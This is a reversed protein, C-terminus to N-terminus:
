EEWDMWIRCDYDGVGWDLGDGNEKGESWEPAGGSGRHSKIERPQKNIGRIWENNQRNDWHNAKCLPKEEMNSRNM